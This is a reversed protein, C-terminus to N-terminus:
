DGKAKYAKSFAKRRPSIHTPKSLYDKCLAALKDILKNSCMSLQRTHLLLRGNNRHVNIWEGKGIEITLGDWKQDFLAQLDIGYEDVYHGCAAIVIPFEKFYPHSFVNECRNQVSRKVEMSHKSWNMPMDNFETIFCYQHFTAIPSIAEPFLQNILKQYNRWTCNCQPLADGRYPFLPNFIKTEAWYPITKPTIANDKINYLWHEHNPKNSKEYVFKDEPKNLDLACEKGIILIKSSPNGFGIFDDATTEKSILDIFEKSYM